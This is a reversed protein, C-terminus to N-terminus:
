LYRDILLLLLTVVVMMIIIMKMSGRRYEITKSLEKNGGKINRSAELVDNYVNEIQAQQQLITTTFLHNLQSIEEVKQETRRTTELLQM